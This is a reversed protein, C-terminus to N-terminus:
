GNVEAMFPGSGCQRRRRGQRSHANMISHNGDQVPRAQLGLSAIMGVGNRYHDCHAQGNLLEVVICREDEGERRWESWLSVVPLKRAGKGDEDIRPELAGGGIQMRAKLLGLMSSSARDVAQGVQLFRGIQDDDALLLRVM